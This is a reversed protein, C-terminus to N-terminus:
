TQSSESAPATHFIRKTISIITHATSSGDCIGRPFPCDAGTGGTNGYDDGKYTYYFGPGLKDSVEDYNVFIEEGEDIDRKAVLDAKDGIKKVTANADADHNTYRAEDSQEWRVKEDKGAHRTIVAPMITDGGSFGKTAFLGKGHVSSEGIRTDSSLKVWDHIIRSVKTRRNRKRVAITLHFPYKPPGLGLSRRMAMLSPSMIDAAWVKSVEPWGGPNVIERVPGINFSFTQGRQTVKDPGGIEDLEEPRIVSVHANYRESHSTPQEVGHENLAKFLGNGLDNPIELLYWGSSSLVLRGQLAYCLPNVAQKEQM